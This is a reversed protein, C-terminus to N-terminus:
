IRFERGTTQNRRSTNLHMYLKNKSVDRKSSTMHELRSSNNKHGKDTTMRHDEKVKMRPIEKSKQIQCIYNFVFGVGLRSFKKPFTSLFSFLKIMSYVNLWFIISMM